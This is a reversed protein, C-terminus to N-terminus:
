LVAVGDAALNGEIDEGSAPILGVAQLVDFGLLLDAADLVAGDVEEAVLGVLAAVVVLDELVRAGNAVAHGARLLGNSLQLLQEVKSLTSLQVSAIKHIQKHATSILLTLLYIKVQSLRGIGISSGLTQATSLVIRTVVYIASGEHGDRV